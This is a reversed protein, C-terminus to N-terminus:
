LRNRYPMVFLGSWCFHGDRVGFHSGSELIRVYSPVHLLKCNGSRPAIDFGYLLNKLGIYSSPLNFDNICDTTYLFKLITRFNYKLLSIVINTPMWKGLPAIYSSATPYLDRRGEGLFILVTTKWFLPFPVSSALCVWMSICNPWIISWSSVDVVLIPLM